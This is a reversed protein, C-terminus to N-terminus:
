ININKVADLVVSTARGSGSGLELIDSSNSIKTSFERLFGTDHKEDFIYDRLIKDYYDPEIYKELTTTRGLWPYKEIIETQTM